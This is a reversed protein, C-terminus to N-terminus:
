SAAVGRTRERAALAAEHPIALSLIQDGVRLMLRARVLPEIMEELVSLEFAQGTVEQLRAKLKPLPMAHDCALYLEREAGSLLSMRRTAASRTDWLILDSGKDIYVLHSKEFKEQWEALGDAMGKTYSAPDRGDQYDYHFYYALNAVSEPPLDYVHHYAPFPRVNTFGLSDWEEFNPSFRDLRVCGYAKPPPLHHLSPLLETIQEYDGPEEGPFGWIINWFPWVGVEMAWKIMQINQLGSVGKRMIDLTGDSFSEVGPQIFAIGADRLMQLQDKRLNAKTEYFLQLSPLNKKALAPLMTKFYKMDLINDVVAVACEPHAEVLEVLESLAREGSKSRYQMSQGNLGCFTCHHKAGWWCGRSTEFMVRPEYDALCASANWREFFGRFDPRPLEDMVEVLPANAPKGSALLARARTYVGQLNPIGRGALVSEIVQSFVMEAEGSVVADIFDFCRLAELGMLSECNAGGFLITVEPLARKIRKALALSAVHQNFVSTFGVIKPQRATIEAVCDDLFPEVKGRARVMDEIECAPVDALVESFYAHDADPRPGFLAQSFMWEGALAEESPHSDALWAYFPPGVREAFALTFYLIESSVDRLTAQLLSLGLSAQNLPGFPMTVLVLDRAEVPAQADPQESAQDLFYPTRDTSVILWLDRGSSSGGSPEPEVAVASLHSPDGRSVLVTYPDLRQPAGANADAGLEAPAGVTARGLLPTVLTLTSAPRPRRPIQGAFSLEVRPHAVGSIGAFFRTLHQVERILAHAHEPDIGAARFARRMALQLREYERQHEFEFPEDARALVDAIEAAFRRPPRKSYAVQVEQQLFARQYLAVDLDPLEHGDRGFVSM